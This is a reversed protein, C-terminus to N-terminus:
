ESFIYCVCDREYESDHYFKSDGFWNFISIFHQCSEIQNKYDEISEDLYSFEENINEKEENSAKLYEFSDRISNWKYQKQLSESLKEELQKKYQIFNDIRYFDGRRHEEKSYFVNVYKDPTLDKLEVDDESTKDGYYINVKKPLLNIDSVDIFINSLDGDKEPKMEEYEYKGEIDSKKFTGAYEKSYYTSAENIIKEDTFYTSGFPLNWGCLINKIQSVDGEDVLTWDKSKTKVYWMGTYYTSM